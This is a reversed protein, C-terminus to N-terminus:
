AGRSGSSPSALLGLPARPLGLPEGPPHSNGDGRQVLTGSVIVITAVGLAALTTLSGVVRRRRRRGDRIMADVSLPIDDGELAAASLLGRLDDTM